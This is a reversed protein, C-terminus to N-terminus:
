PRSVPLAVRFVSEPEIWIDGGHARVIERAIHLGVGSGPVKRRVSSHRYYKDFVKERDREPIGPGEDSIRILVRDQAAEASLSVLGSPPSYKLGNDIIQRLALSILEPDVYVDRMEQLSPMVQIRHDGRGSFSGAATRLLSQPAVAVRDLKVKGAEIQSMKVAETVLLSLRDTEENIISAMERHEPRLGEEEGLLSTSAAKISTLPTKFEHAIADLLMSKFEENQRAVEAKNAAEETLVRELAIAVLNLLAQVASDSLRIGTAALAGVARGGLVIPWVDVGSELQHAGQLVVQKLVAGIAPIEAAGGQFTLGSKADFLIVAGSGFIQAIHQVAQAGIPQALDTLLIARSLAYLQETEKQRRKAELNQAKARDSLHSAVLATTLFALLAVWNQPDSITFHGRPPLFFYNYCLMAGVSAAVSEFLGWVAAVALILILYCFGVTTANVPLFEACVLTIAVVGLCAAGARVLAMGHLNAM